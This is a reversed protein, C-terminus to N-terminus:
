AALVGSFIGVEHNQEHPKTSRERRQEPAQGVLDFRKKEIAPTPVSRSTQSRQMNVAASPSGPVIQASLVLHKKGSLNPQQFQKVGDFEVKYGAKADGKTQGGRWTTDSYDLYANTAGAQVAPAAIVDFNFGLKTKFKTDPSVAESNPQFKDLDVLGMDAGPVDGCDESSQTKGNSAIEEHCHGALQGHSELRIDLANTGEAWFASVFADPTRYNGAFTGSGVISTDSSHSESQSTYKIAGQASTPANPLDLIDVSGNANPIASLQVGRTYSLNLKLTATTRSDGTQSNDEQDYQIQVVLRATVSKNNRQQAVAGGLFTGPLVLSLASLWILVRIGPKM